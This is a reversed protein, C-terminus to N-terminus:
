FQVSFRQWYFYVLNLYLVSFHRSFTQEMRGNETVTDYQLRVCRVRHWVTAQCMEWTTNSFLLEQKWTNSVAYPSSKVIIPNTRRAGSLPTLLEEALASNPRVNELDEYIRNDYNITNTNNINYNITNTNNISHDPNQLNLDELLNDLM